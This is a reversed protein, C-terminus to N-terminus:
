GGTSFKMKSTNKVDLIRFERLEDILVHMIKIKDVLAVAMYYGSPHM